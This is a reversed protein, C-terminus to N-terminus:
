EEDLGEAMGHGCIRNLDENSYGMGELIADVRAVMKHAVRRRLYKNWLTKRLSLWIEESPQELRVWDDTEPDFVSVQWERSNWYGRFTRRGEYEALRDRWEHVQNKTM